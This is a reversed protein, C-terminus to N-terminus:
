GLGLGALVATADLIKGLLFQYTLLIALFNDLYLHLRGVHCIHLLGGVAM